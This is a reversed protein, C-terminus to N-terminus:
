KKRRPKMKKQPSKKTASVRYPTPEEAARAFNVQSITGSNEPAHIINARGDSQPLLDHWNPPLIVRGSETVCQDVFSKALMRILASKTTGAKSAAAQLRLDVSQELRVPLQAGLRMNGTYCNNKKPSLYFKEQVHLMAVCYQGCMLVLRRVCVRGTRRWLSTSFRRLFIALAAPMVFDSARRMAM